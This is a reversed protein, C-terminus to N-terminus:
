NIEKKRGHKEREEKQLQKRVYEGGKLNQVKMKKMVTVEEVNRQLIM